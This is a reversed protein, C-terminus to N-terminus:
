ACGSATACSARTTSRRTSSTGSRSRAGTTASSRASTTTCSRRSSPVRGADPRDGLGPGPPVLRPHARAGGHRPRPRLGRDLGRRGFDYRDQEPPHHGVEDRERAHGRQVRAGASSPVYAAEDQAVPDSRCRPAVAAAVAPAAASSACRLRTDSAPARPSLDTTGPDRDDSSARRAVGRGLVVRRRALAHARTSRPVASGAGTNKAADLFAPARRRRARAHERRQRVGRAAVRPLPVRRRHRRAHGHPRAAGDRRGRAIGEEDGYFLHAQETVILGATVANVRVKPAFDVALTQTLNLLGAKAAGYAASGPTRGRHRERERHQRDVGGDDQDQM